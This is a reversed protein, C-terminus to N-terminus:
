KKGTELNERQVTKIRAIDRRLERIKHNFKLQGLVRQTRMQFQQRRLNVLLDSLDGPARSRIEKMTM